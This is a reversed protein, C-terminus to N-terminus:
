AETQDGAVDPESDDLEDHESEDSDFEGDDDAEDNREGVESGGALAGLDVGTSLNGMLGELDVGGLLGELDLNGVLGGLDVGGAFPPGEPAHLSARLENIQHLADRLAALVADELLSIDDREVIARDIHVTEAELSGSVRIIVAGGAATGEVVTADVEEAQAELDARAAQLHSFLEGLGGASFFDGETV